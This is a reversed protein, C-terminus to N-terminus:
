RSRGNFVRAEAMAGRAVTIGLKEAVRLNVSLVAKRAEARPVDRVATGSLIKDAMEGAQRGIDYPDIEISLLAGTELYKDAFTIVPMRHRISFLILFEFTEPTVVTVDPLMWFVNIEDKMGELQEPFDRSNRIEKAVLVIGTESAVARAKKVFSGTGAPNYLVGVHTFAPLAKRLLALQIEPRLAMSVGTVNGSDLASLQPNLVMM